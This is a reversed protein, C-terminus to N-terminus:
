RTRHWTQIASGAWPHNYSDWDAASFTTLLETCIQALTKDTQNPMPPSDDPQPDTPQLRNAAPTRTTTM